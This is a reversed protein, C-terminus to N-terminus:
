KLDNDKLNVKVNVKQYSYVMLQVIFVYLLQALLKCM